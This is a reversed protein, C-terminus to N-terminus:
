IAKFPKRNYLNLLLLILFSVIFLLISYFYANHYRLAEVENFIAVSAVKTEGPLSGGIMLVIGFEGLTHAFTLVCGSLLAPKVNPLLVKFLTELKGKGLTFSAEKLHDPLSQLGSLIPNVMFPLSYILSGILIGEFTFALRFNLYEYLFHGLGNEPSFIMLLYFGIVTPPLVLPLSIFASVVSSLKSKAYALFYAVPIAVVLLIITTTVALKFTLALTILFDNL